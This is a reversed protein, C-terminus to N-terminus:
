AGFLLSGRSGSRMIYKVCCSSLKTEERLFSAQQTWYNCYGYWSYRCDSSFPPYLTIPLKCAHALEFVRSERPTKGAQWWDVEMEVWSNQKKAVLPIYLLSNFGSTHALMHGVSSAIALLCAPCAFVCHFTMGNPSLDVCLFLNVSFCLCLIPVSRSAGTTQNNSPPYSFCFLLPSLCPCPLTFSPSFFFSQAHSM